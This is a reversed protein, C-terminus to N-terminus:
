LRSREADIVVVEPRQRRFKEIAELPLSQCSQISLAKISKMGSLTKLANETIRSNPIALETIHLPAIRSICDDTIGCDGLFLSKLDHLDQLVALDEPNKCLALNKDLGLSRLKPFTKCLHPLSKGTILSTRFSLDYLEPPGTLQKFQEDDMLRIDNIYLRRLSAIKSIEALCAGDLRGNEIHLYTIPEDKLSALGRAGIEPMKLLLEHIEESQALKILEQDTTPGSARWQEGRRVFGTTLEEPFPSLEKEARARKQASAEDEKDEEFLKLALYACSLFALVVAVALTIKLAEKSKAM